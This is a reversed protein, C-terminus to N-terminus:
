VDGEERKDIGLRANRPLSIERFGPAVLTVLLPLLAQATRSVIRVRGAQLM